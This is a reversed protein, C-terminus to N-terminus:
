PWLLHRIWDGGTREYRLRTHRRQADAQWFEVESAALAYLTWDAAVLDPEANIRDLATRLAAEAEAPDDLVQSQRSSLAEARAGPSRALFDAASREAGATTVPGRVRIQRGQQPWYFTLAAHPNAELEHGKRGAASSAFYWNGEDDVDKCILVRASPRGGEDATSLTMAHPEFVGGEIASMLWEVFLSVPEDPATGPRFDPLDFAFVPLSRLLRRVGGPEAPSEQPM